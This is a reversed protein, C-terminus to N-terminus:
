VGGIEAPGNMLLAEMASTRSLFECGMMFGPGTEGASEQTHCVKVDVATQLDGRRMTLRHVSDRELQVPCTVLLGGRSINIVTLAVVMEFTGWLGGVIEFRPHTRRDGASMM